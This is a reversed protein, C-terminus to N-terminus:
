AVQQPGEPAGGPAEARDAIAHGLRALAAALAEPLAQQPGESYRTITGPPFRSEAGGGQGAPATRAPLPMVITYANSIQRLMVAGRERVRIMRRSWAVLGAALLRQLAEVVTARCCGAAEALAELSPDCRGSRANQFRLVLARLVALGTRKIIGGHQGPLRTRRDLAEAHALLRARDNRDLPVFDASTPFSSGGRCRRRQDAHLDDDHQM